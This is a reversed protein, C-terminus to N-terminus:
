GSPASPEASTRLSEIYATLQWITQEPLLAGWAPMGKGRGQAISDFIDSSTGGYIWDQDRLSPGMGGGGRGGHCGSCNFAVFLQRGQAIAVPDNGLPNTRQHMAQKPGPIPGVVTQVPPLAGAPASDEPKGKSSCATLLAMLVAGAASAVVFRQNM